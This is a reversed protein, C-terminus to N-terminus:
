LFFRVISTLSIVVSMAVTFQLTLAIIAGIKLSVNQSRFLNSKWNDMSFTASFSSKSNFTKKETMFQPQSLYFSLGYFADFCLVATMVLYSLDIRGSSLLSDSGYALALLALKSVAFYSTSFNVFSNEELGFYNYISMAAYLAVFVSLVPAISSEVACVISTYILAIILLGGIMQANLAEKKNFVNNKWNQYCFVQEFKEVFSTISEPVINSNEVPESVQVYESQTEQLNEYAKRLGFFADLAFPVAM